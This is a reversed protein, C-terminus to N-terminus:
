KAVGAATRVEHVVQAIVAAGKDEMAVFNLLEDLLRRQEPETLDAVSEILKPKGVLGTMLALQDTADTVTLAKLGSEIREPLPRDTVAPRQPEAATEQPRQAPAQQATGGQNSRRGGREGQGGRGRQNGRSHQFERERAAARRQEEIRDDDAGDQSVPRCYAKDPDCKMYDFVLWELVNRDKPMVLASDEGPRIGAFTSRCAILEARGRRGNKGRHMRVWATSDFGLNKQAEVSWTKQGNPLPQGNAGFETVEKGRATLIVIGPISALLNLLEYHRDTAPNWYAPGVIVEANPDAELRKRNEKSGRAKWEAWKALTKWEASMTDVVVVVPKEGAAKAAVAIKRVHALKAMLDYLGKFPVIQYRAGPVAGYQRATGEFGFEFWFSRGVKDSGTFEAAVWSKGAKEEGEVLIMPYPVAGDPVETYLEALLQELQEAPSPVNSATTVEAGTATPAQPETAVATM